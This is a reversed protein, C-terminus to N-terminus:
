QERTRMGKSRARSLSLLCGKSKVVLTEARRAVKRSSSRAHVVVLRFDLVVALHHHHYSIYKVPATSECRKSSGGSSVMSAMLRTWRACM